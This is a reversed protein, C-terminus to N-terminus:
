SDEIQEDKHGESAEANRVRAKGSIIKSKGFLPARYGTNEDHSFLSALASRTFFVGQILFVVGIIGGVICAFKRAGVSLRATDVEIQWGIFASLILFAGGLLYFLRLMFTSVAAEKISITCGTALFLIFVGAQYLYINAM